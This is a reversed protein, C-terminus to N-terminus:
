VLSVNFAEEKFTTDVSRPERTGGVNVIEGGLLYKFPSDTDYRDALEDWGVVVDQGGSNTLCGFGKPIDYWKVVAQNHDLTPKTSPKARAWIPVGDFSTPLKSGKLKDTLFKQMAGWQRGQLTPFVIDDNEAGEPRYCVITRELQSVLYGQGDQMPLGITWSRVVGGPLTEAFRVLSEVPKTYLGNDDDDFIIIKRRHHFRYERSDPVDHRKAEQIEVEQSGATNTKLGVTFAHIQRRESVFYDVQLEDKATLEGVCGDSQTTGNASYLLTRERRPAPTVVVNEAPEETDEAPRNSFGTNKFHRSLTSRSQEMETEPIPEGNKQSEEAPIESSADPEKIDELRNVTVSIGSPVQFVSRENM